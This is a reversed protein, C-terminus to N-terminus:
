NEHINYSLHEQNSETSTNEQITIGEELHQNAKLLSKCVNRTTLTGAKRKAANTVWALFGSAWSVRTIVNWKWLLVEQLALFSVRSPRLKTIQTVYWLQRWDHLRRLSTKHPPLSDPGRSLSHIPWINCLGDMVRKVLHEPLLWHRSVPAPAATSTGSASVACEQRLGEESTWALEEPTSLGEHGCQEQKRQGM